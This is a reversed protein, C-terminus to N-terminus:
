ISNAGTAKFGVSKLQMAKGRGGALKQAAFKERALEIASKQREGGVEKEGGKGKGHPKGIGDGLIDKGVIVNANGDQSKLVMQNTINAKGQTDGSKVRKVWDARRRKFLDMSWNRWVIRGAWSERLLAEYPMLSM